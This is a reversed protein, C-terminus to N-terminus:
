PLLRDFAAELAANVIGMLVAIAAFVAVVQMAIWAKAWAPLPGVGDAQLVRTAALRDHLARFPPAAAMLHGFNLTLWSLAGALERSVARALGIREGDVGAVRLGLLRKGPSAQARSAACLAHYPLSLVGFALLPPWATAAVAGALGHVGARWAEDALLSQAPLPADHRMADFLHAAMADSATALAERSRALGARMAPLCALCAATALAAADLSWAAYRRAFGADTM